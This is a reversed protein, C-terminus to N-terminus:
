ETDTSLDLGTVQPSKRDLREQLVVGCFVIRKEYAEASSWSIAKYMEFDSNKM